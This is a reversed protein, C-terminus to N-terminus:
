AQITRLAHLIQEDTVAAPNQGPRPPPNYTAVAYAHVSAITAGGDDAPAAALRTRAAEVEGQTLGITAGLAIMRALLDDDRSAGIIDASSQAM